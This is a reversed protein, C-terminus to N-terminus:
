FFFKRMKTSEIVVNRVYADNDILSTNLRAIEAEIVKGVSLM